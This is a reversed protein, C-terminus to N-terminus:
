FAGDKEQGEADQGGEEEGSGIRACALVAVLFMGAPVGALLGIVIGAAIEAAVAAARGSM